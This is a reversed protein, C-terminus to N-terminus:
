IHFKKHMEEKFERGKFIPLAALFLFSLGICIVAPYTVTIVKLLLLILPLVAGYAAAMVYYIMYERASHKQIKSIVLMSIQIIACAAPLVYNVSWARWGTLLDWIICGVTVIVLQWVANKLLNHRKRYGLALALWMSGIGGVAFVGWRSDPTVSSNIMGCIVALALCVFSFGRFFQLGKYGDNRAEPYSPEIIQHGIGQDELIKLFNRKVNTSDFPSTFGLSIVDQFSCMCLEIKPTSTFVGFRKIYPVYAEPMKVISMNSFVATIDKESIKAGANICLNKLSLPVFKLAPILELAILNDMREEVREKKLEEAFVDKTHSLVQEFTDEQEGFKYGPEIWGFFNLMSASPFYNRLNVPVMLIVPNKEQMKTMEAHIACIFAATLYVTMSVGAERSKKLVEKVSLVAETIQLKGREKRPKRLQFARPKKERKKKRDPSYYKTFSDNEQDEVTITKDTLSIDELGEDSHVALLYNKVLERVFETAGTGDTLAHYVEFNIRNKYYTVEFLLKQKDKVYITSCPEKYEERVVPRLKSKELYHWFLGARMVSLFVPYKKLTANLAEQLKEEEIQENLECYFRFVRTDKESSTASYLKAANDLRRWYARKTEFM